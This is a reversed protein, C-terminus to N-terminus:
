KNSNLQFILTLKKIRNDLLSNDFSQVNDIIM